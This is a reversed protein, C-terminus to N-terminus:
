VSIVLTSEWVKQLVYESIFLLHTKEYNFEPSQSVKEVISSTFSEEKEDIWTYQCYTEFCKELPIGSAKHVRITVSLIRGKLEDIKDIMVLNEENGRENKLKLM